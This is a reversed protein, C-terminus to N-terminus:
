DQRQPVVAAGEGAPAATEAAAPEAAQAATGPEAEVAGPARAQTSGGKVSLTRPPTTGIRVPAAGVANDTGAAMFPTALEPRVINRVVRPTILLVIETKSVNDRTSSFVRGVAPVDGLGPLHTGTTREEDAILGALVQTEGNRLRLSTSAARSGIQYALSGQPGTVEKSVASVELGVNMTVEDELSVSPEVDLKLGVDLYNVSASVGVNATSTTTFIPLKDGIHVKAKAHNKVRIRPNALVKAFSDEDTLNLVAAPNTIYPVLNDRGNKLDIVGSLVQMGAATTSFSSAAGLAGYGVQQPFKIGLELLKTRAIELVEVDLMVEPEAIDLTAILREALRVAEATDKIVLLNTKEDIFTDKTKVVQKILAQAQKADTNSLLFSRTVLEQYEKQKVPTAPYILISNENLLKRDLGNTSLILRVVDDLSSNRVFVTVKADGKVDRDLVFNLGASRSIAEFVTRLPTDRFELTIPKTFPGKLTTASTRRAADAEDMQRQAARAGPHLPDEALVLRLRQEAAPLDGRDIMVLAEAVAADRRKMAAIGDLGARARPHGPDLKLADNLLRQADDYAGAVLRADAARVKETVMIDRQRIWAARLERDSPKEKLAAELTALAADGQGALDLKRSENVVPNGTCAGLLVCTALLVPSAARFIACRPPPKSDLPSM